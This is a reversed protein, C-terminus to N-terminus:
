RVTPSAFPNATGSGGLPAPAAAPTGQHADPTEGTLWDSLQAALIGTAVPNNVVLSDIIYILVGNMGLPSYATFTMGDKTNKLSVGTSFFNEALERGPPLMGPDVKLYPLATLANSIPLLTNYVRLFSERTDLYMLMSLNDGMGARVRQYDPRAILRSGTPHRLLAKLAQPHTSIVISHEGVVAYCPAAPIPLNTQNMYRIVVKGETAADFPANLNKEMKTILDQFAQPQANDFRLVTGSPGISMVMMDGLTSLLDVAPVGFIKQQRVMSKMNVDFLSVGLAEEMADMLKTGRDFLQAPNIRASLVFEAEDPVTSVLEESKGAMTLMDLIGIRTGPAHLYITDRLGDGSFRTSYGVAEISPLGMVNLLTVMDEPAFTSFLYYIGKMNAYIFGNDDTAGTEKLVRQFLLNKGLTGEPSAAKAAIQAMMAKSNSFVLVNDLLSFYCIDPTYRNSDPTTLCLVPMDGIKEVGAPIDGSVLRQACSTLVRFVTERNQTKRFQLGLVAVTGTGDNGRYLAGCLQAALFDNMFEPDINANQGAEDILDQMKGHIDDIFAAVEKHQRIRGLASTQMASAFSDIPFSHFYVIANDPLFQQLRHEGAAPPQGTEGAFLGGLSVLCLGLMITCSRNLM